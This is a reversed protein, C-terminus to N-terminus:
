RNQKIWESAKEVVQDPAIKITERTKRVILEVENNQLGRSGLNIRLPLFIIRVVKSVQRQCDNFQQPRALIHQLARAIGRLAMKPQGHFVVRM